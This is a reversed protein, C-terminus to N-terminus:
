RVVAIKRRFSETKGSTYRATIRCFYTGPVIGRGADNDGSWSDEQHSGITKFENSVVKKVLEGTITYIDIDVYADEPLVYGITTVIGRAPNFPNPYNTYSNELGATVVSIEATKLPFGGGTLIPYVVSSLNLDTLDTFTSDQFSVLYNGRPADNRLDCTLSMEITSGNAMSFPNLPILRLTDDDLVSDIAVIEGDALLYIASFVTNGTVPFTGDATHNLVQGTIGGLVLDGQLDETSYDLTGYWFLAGQQGRYALQVPLSQITLLPRGAPLFVNTQGTVFPFETTCGNELIFGPIHTTDNYDFIKIESETSIELVFNEYPVDTEIDATLFITQSDGPNFVYGNSDLNFIIRGGQLEIYAQYDVSSGSLHYGIRDFLRDPDLPTGSSDFVTIFVNDLRIPAYGTETPYDLSIALLDLSDVGGAVSTPLLSELCLEPSVAPSELTALSSTIPFESGSALTYVTDTAMALPSGSSGDRVVFFTSDPILVGFRDVTTNENIWAQIVLSDAEGGNLTLPSNLQIDLQRAGPLFNGVEAVISQQRKIRVLDLLDSLALTDNFDNVFMMSLDTLQIQSSGASDPHRFKLQLVEVDEQGYNVFGNLLTRSSVVMRESAVDIRCSATKFPFILEPALPVMLGTNEDTIPVHDAEDVTLIFNDASASSDIDVLLSLFQEHGPDVIIPQNFNLVIESVHSINQLVVLNSYETALKIRSFVDDAYISQGSSNEVGLIISDLRLSATSLTSDPHAFGISLPFVNAQGRTVSIPASNLMQVVVDSPSQQIRINASQIIASSDASSESYSLVRWYVEGAAAATYYFTFDTSEGTALIVPGADSSDFTVLSSDSIEIIIGRVSDIASGLINTVTVGLEITQGVSYTENLSQNAIQLGSASITFSAPANIASDIPGDNGSNFLCGNLPIEAKFTVDPTATLSVDGLVFLAPRVSDIPLILSNLEWRNSQYDFTGMLSDTSQWFDDGNLDLWLELTSIDSTDASGTNAVVLSYLTDQLNGNYAAKFAFLTIATDGPSLTRPMTEAIEYQSAISGDVILYGGTILPLDGNVNVIGSFSFDSPGAISVALSDTDILAQPFDALAFFYSLSEPPLAVDFGSFHLESDNFNGIGVLSDQTEEFIRDRNADFYLSVQGLEYDAYAQDSQSRSINTLTIGNITQEQGLYGNYLAFTLINSNTEKPRIVSSAAPISIVTMRNSPFVMIPQPNAVSIDDPGDTGSRYVAGGIPIGLQITAAEFQGSSINMTVIFRTGPSEIPFHLNSLQWYDEYATFQGLLSDDVSFGNNTKDTRLKLTLLKTSGLLTGNDIIRLSALSDSAYGNPPLVFDLAPQNTQGGYVIHNNVNNIIMNGSPFNNIIFYNQNTLPFSGEIYIPQAFYFDTSDNVEPRVLNGNKCNDADLMAAAFLELEGGGGAISLGATGFLATGDQILATAILSDAASMTEFDGDRNIYLLLSDFQNDLQVQSAGGPDVAGINIRVSDFGFSSIYSNVMEIALLPGSNSGPTLERAAMNFRTMQIAETTRIIITDLPPCDADIPGDNQSTMELGNEPIALALTANNAPYDVLRAGVYFRNNQGTLGTNLGSRMWRNGTYVLTGLRIETGRGDWVGNGDDSFLILSDIDSYSASGYNYISFIDLTDDRYGNRPIDVTFVNYLSDAPSIESVGTPIQMIQGSIMGDIIICGLSNLIEPGKITTGDGAIIDISPLFYLDLTDGDHPYQSIKSCVMFTRVSDPQIDIPPFSLTMVGSIEGTTTIFSDLVTLVSDNEIDYYLGVSDLNTLLETLDGEGSSTDRITISSISKTTDYFNSIRFALIPITGQGPYGKNNGLPINSVFLAKVNIAGSIDSVGNINSFVMVSCIGPHNAIFLGTSDINGIQGLVLWSLHGVNAPNSKLDYGDAIFQISDDVSIVATDPSIVIRHLIGPTVAITGSTDTLGSGTVVINGFGITSPTFLGDADITGIGGLVSWDAVPFSCENSDADFVQPTFQVSSDANVTITDPSISLSAPLGTEVIIIGTTDSLGSFHNAVVKGSGPNTITLVTSADPGPAVSGISDGDVLSWTVSINGILNNGSDYGRCYLVTSDNDTTLTSDDFPTGDESEIVIYNLAGVGVVTVAGSDSLTGEYVAKVFYDPPSPNEGATYLGSDTISGSPDTTSWVVSDTIDYVYNSDSDYGKAFYQFSSDVDVSNLVPIVNIYSIEGPIVLIFDTMATPGIDSKVSIFGYGAKIASFLGNIDIIGIGGDVSWDLTGFESVNNGHIDFGNVAFQRTSDASITDCEPIIYLSDLTGPIVSMNETTDAIGNISSTAVVGGTGILQPTFLGNSDIAGTAFTHSWTIEGPDAPYGSSDIAEIYFQYTSDAFLSDLSPNVTLVALPSTEYAGIDPADGSYPLGVDIGADIAPSLSNLRFNGTEPEVLLPDEFICSSDLTAGGVVDTGNNYFISYAAKSASARLGIGTNCAFISNLIMTKGSQDFIGSSSNGYFICNNVESSKCSAAIFLGYVLSSDIVIANFSNGIGDKLHIGRDGANSFRSYEIVNNLGTILMNTAAADFVSIGSWAIGGADITVAADLGSGDVFTSDRIGKYVIKNDALGSATIIVPETYTGPLVYVTDGPFLLSDGNDITAWATGPTLGSNSDDGSPSVYYANYKEFAGIEPASGNFPFGLYLGADIEDATHKLDFRGAATNVFQPSVSIGGASDFVGGNYNGDSNGWVNNFGCINEGDGVIGKKNNAVINNFVRATKEKVEIGNDACSYVTNGYFRNYSGSGENKIGQDGAFAITNKLFLNYSGGIHIGIKNVNYIFCKTITCFDSKLEIANNTTKTLNLGEFITHNGEVLLIITGDNDADIIVDGKGHKRYVVPLLSSGNTQLHISASILYTGSLINITDGPVLLSKQDGNDITLWATEITLGDNSNDGDPSVFYNAANLSINVFIVLILSVLIRRM